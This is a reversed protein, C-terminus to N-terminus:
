ELGLVKERGALARRSMKEATKHKGQDRLVLALNNVSALTNPYGVGLM